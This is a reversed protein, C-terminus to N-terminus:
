KMNKIIVSTGIRDVLNRLEEIQQYSRIGGSAKIKIYNPLIKRMYKIKEVKEFFPKNKKTFGTSTQVFDVGGKVCIECAIQLQDYTIEEIEIIVKLIVGNKHCLRSVSKIEDLLKDYANQYEDEKIISLQKLATYNFTFDIEDVDNTIAELAEKIKINSKSIGKPFDIAAIVKIDTDELFAKTTSVNDSDVVVAYFNNEEADECVKKIEDITTKDKIYTYDVDIPLNDTMNEFIFKDFKKIKKM